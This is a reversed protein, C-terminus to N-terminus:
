KGGAQAQLATAIPLFLRRTEDPIPQFGSARYFAAAAEDKADVILALAGYGTRLSPRGEPRGIGLRDTRIVADAILARGLGQGQRELAVPLRGMLIAPVVPYYPLRRRLDVPAAEIPVSTAALTYYGAIAGNDAVAVFCGAIRRKVDQPALERLYRDLAASGSRFANREHDRRLAETVISTV